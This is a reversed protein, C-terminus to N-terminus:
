KVLAGFEVRSASKGKEGPPKYINDKKLFVREQSVKGQETLFNRVVAAREQALMKLEADGMLTHTLILKKM